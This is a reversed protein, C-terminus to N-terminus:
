LAITLNFARLLQLTFENAPLEPRPKKQKDADKAKDAESRPSYYKLVRQVIELQRDTFTLARGLPTRCWGLFKRNHEAVSNRFDLAEERSMSAWATEGRDTLAPAVPPM